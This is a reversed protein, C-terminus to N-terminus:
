LSELPDYYTLFTDKEISDPFIAFHAIGEWQAKGDMFFREKQVIHQKQANM